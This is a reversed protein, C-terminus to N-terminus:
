QTVKDTHRTGEHEAGGKLDVILYESEPDRAVPYSKTVRVDLDFFQFFSKASVDAGTPRLRVKRIGQENPDNTLQIGIRRADRDYYLVCYKFNELEFRKRAGENLGILGSRNLSAKPSYSRGGEVFREFAM